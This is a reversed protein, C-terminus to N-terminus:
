DTKNKILVLTNNDVTKVLFLKKGDNSWTFYAISGSSFNTLPTERRDNLSISWINDIGSKKIFTLSESDPSWKFDPPTDFEWEKISQVTKEGELGVVKFTSTMNSTQDEYKYDLYVVRKGDPSLRPSTESNNNEPLLVAAEGGDISIKMLKSHGGGSTRRVFIVTKGDPTRQPQGADFIGNVILRL